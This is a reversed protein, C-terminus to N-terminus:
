VYRHVPQRTRLIERRGKIRSHFNELRPAAMTKSLLVSVRVLSYEIVSGMKGVRGGGSKGYIVILGRRESNLMLLM